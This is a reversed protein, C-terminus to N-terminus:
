QQSEPSQGSEIYKRIRAAMAIYPEYTGRQDYSNNNAIQGILLVAIELSRARLEQDDTM